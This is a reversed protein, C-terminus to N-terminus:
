LGLSLGASAFLSLVSAPDSARQSLDVATSGNWNMLGSCTFKVSVTNGGDAVKFGNEVIWITDNSLKYVGSPSGAEYLQASFSIPVECFGGAIAKLLNDHEEPIMEFECDGSIPGVIRGLAVINNGFMLEGACKESANVVTSGVIKTTGVTLILSTKSFRPSQLSWLSM